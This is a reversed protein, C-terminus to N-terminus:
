HSKHDNFSERNQERAQALLEIFEASLIQASAKEISCELNWLTQVLPQNHEGEALLAESLKELEASLIVLDSVTLQVSVEEALNQM